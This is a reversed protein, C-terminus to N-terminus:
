EPPEKYLDRHANLAEAAEDFTGAECTITLCNCRSWYSNNINSGIGTKTNMSPYWCTEYSPTILEGEYDHPPPLGTAWVRM